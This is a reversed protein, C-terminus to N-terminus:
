RRRNTNDRHGGGRGGRRSDDHQGGRRDDRRDGERRDGDRRDGERRDDWDGRGQQQPGGRDARQPPPGRGGGGGHQQQHPSPGRSPGGRGSPRRDPPPGTRGGRGRNLRPRGRDPSPEDGRKRKRQEILRDRAEQEAKLRRARDPDDEVAERKNNSGQQQEVKLRRDQDLKHDDEAMNNDRKSGRRRPPEERKHQEKTTQEEQKTAEPAEAHRAQEEEMKIGSAEEKEQLRITEDKEMDEEEEAAARDFNSMGVFRKEREVPDEGEEEEDDVQKAVPKSSTPKEDPKQEETAAGGQEMIGGADEEEIEEKKKKSDPVDIVKEDEEKPSEDDDEKPSEKEDTKVQTENEVDMKVQAENEVDTKVKDDDEITNNNELYPGPIEMGYDNQFVHRVLNEYDGNAKVFSYSPLHNAGLLRLAQWGLMQDRKPSYEEDIGAEPDLADVYDDLHHRITPVNRKMTASITALDDMTIPNLFELEQQQQQSTTTTTKIQLAAAATAATTTTTTTTVLQMAGPPCKQKKWNRWMPERNQLLNQLLSAHNPDLKEILSSSRQKLSELATALLQPSQTSLFAEVIFFQTVLHLKLLQSSELQAMLVRSQTLFQLSSSDINYRQSHHVAELETLVKTYKACFTAFSTMQYPNAFDHQLSWFTQYFTYDDGEYDANTDFSIKGGLSVSGWPKWCSKDTLPLRQALELLVLGTWESKPPVRKILANCVRIFQLMHGGSSTTTTTTTTTWLKSVQQFPTATTYFQELQSFPLSEVIDELLVLGLKPIGDIQLQELVLICNEFATQLLQLDDNSCNEFLLDRLKTELCDYQVVPNTEDKAEQLISCFPEPLAPPPPPPPAPAPAPAPAVDATMTSVVVQQQQQQQQTKNTIIHTHHFPHYPRPNSTVSVTIECHSACDVRGGNHAVTCYYQM